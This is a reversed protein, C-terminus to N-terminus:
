CAIVTGNVAMAGIFEPSLSISTKNEIKKPKTNYLLWELSKRDTNDSVGLRLYSNDGYYSSLTILSFESKAKSIFARLERIAANLAIQSYQSYSSNNIISLLVFDQQNEKHQCLNTLEPIYHSIDLLDEVGVNDFYRIVCLAISIGQKIIFSSSKNSSIVERLWEFQSKASLEEPNIYCVQRNRDMANFYPPRFLCDIRGRGEETIIIM